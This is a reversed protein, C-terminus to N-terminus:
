LTEYRRLRSRITEYSLSLRESARDLAQVRSLGDRKRLKAALHVCALLGWHAAFTPALHWRDPPIGFEAAHSRLNELQEATM